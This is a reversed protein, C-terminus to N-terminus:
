HRTPLAANVSETDQAGDEVRSPTKTVTVSPILPNPRIPRLMVRMTLAAALGPIRIAATFSM